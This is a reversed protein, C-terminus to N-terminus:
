AVVGQRRLTQLLDPGAGEIRVLVHQRLDKLLDHWAQGLQTVDRLEVRVERKHNLMLKLTSLLSVHPRDANEASVRVTVSSIQEALAKGAETDVGFVLPRRQQKEM